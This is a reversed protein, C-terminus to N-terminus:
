NDRAYREAMEKIEARTKSGRLAEFSFNLAVKRRDSDYSEDTSYFAKREKQRAAYAENFTDQTVGHRRNHEELQKRSSIVTGDLPSKFPEIEGQIFHGGRRYLKAEVLKGTQPDQIYRKRPM